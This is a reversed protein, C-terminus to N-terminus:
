QDEPEDDSEAHSWRRMRCFRMRIDVGFHIALVPYGNEAENKAYAVPPASVDPALISTGDTVLHQITLSGM